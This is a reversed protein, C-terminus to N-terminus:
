KSEREEFLKLNESLLAVFEKMRAPPVVLRAVCKADVKDIADLEEQIAEPTKGVIPPSWVEFFSLVFYEPEHQVVLNTVFHSSLNDPYIRRLKVEKSLPEKKIDDSM